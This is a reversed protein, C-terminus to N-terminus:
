IMEGHSKPLFFLYEAGPLLRQTMRGYEHCHTPTTHPQKSLSPRQSRGASTRTPSTVTRLLKSTSQVLWTSSRSLSVQASISTRTSSRSSSPLPRIPPVTPILTSPSHSRSVLPTHYNSSHVAPSSLTSWPSLLGVPLTHPLDTLRPSIREPSLVVVTLVGDVTHTLLSREALSVLM